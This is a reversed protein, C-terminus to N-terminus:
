VWNGFVSKKSQSKKLLCLADKMAPGFTSGGVPKMKQAQQGGYKNQSPGRLEPPLDSVKNKRRKPKRANLSNWLHNDTEKM